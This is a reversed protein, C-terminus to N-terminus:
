HSGASEAPIQVQAGTGGRTVVDTTAVGNAPTFTLTLCHLDSAAQAPLPSCPAFCAPRVDLVNKSHSTDLTGDSHVYAFARATGPTGPKGPLGRRGRQNWAIANGKACHKGPKLVPLQGGKGVCGHIQGDAGVFGTAALPRSSLAFCAAEGGSTRRRYRPRSRGLRSVGDKRGRCSRRTASWVPAVRGASARDGPREGPGHRARRLAAHRDPSEGGRPRGGIRPRVRREVTWAPLRCCRRVRRAGGW